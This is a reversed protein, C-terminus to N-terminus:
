IIYLRTRPSVKRFIDEFNMKAADDAFISETVAMAEPKREALRERAAEDIPTKQFCCLLRRGDVMYYTAGTESGPIVEGVPIGDDGTFQCAYDTRVANEARQPKVEREM